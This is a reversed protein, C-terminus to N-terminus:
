RNLIKINGLLPINFYEGSYAKVIGLIVFVVYGIYWLCQSLLILLEIISKSNASVDVNSRVVGFFLILFPISTVRCCALIINTIQLIIANNAHHRVFSNNRTEPLLLPVFFVIYALASLLRLNRESLQNNQFTIQDHNQNNTISQDM